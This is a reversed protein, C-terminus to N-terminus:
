QKQKTGAPLPISYGNELYQKIRQFADSLAPYRQYLQEYEEDPAYRAKVRDGTYLSGRLVGDVGNHFDEEPGDGRFDGYDTKRAEAEYAALLKQYTPDQERAVHLADLAIDEDTVKDPNFVIATEGPYKNALNFGNNYHVTDKAWNGAFTEIDGYGNSVNKDPYIHYKYGAMVPFRKAIKVKYEREPDSIAEAAQRSAQAEKDITAM